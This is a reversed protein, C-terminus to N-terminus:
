FCVCKLGCFVFLFAFHRRMNARGFFSTFLCCFFLIFIFYM